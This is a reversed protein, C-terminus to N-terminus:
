LASYAVAPRPAQGTRARNFSTPLAEGSGLTVRVDAALGGDRRRDPRVKASLFERLWHVRM